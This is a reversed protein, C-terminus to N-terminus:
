RDFYSSFNPGVKSLRTGFKKWKMIECSGRCGPNGQVTIGPSPTPEGNPDAPQPAEVAPTDQPPTAPGAEDRHRAPSPPGGCWRACM